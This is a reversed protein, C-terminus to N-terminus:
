KHLLVEELLFFFSNLSAMREKVCYKRGFFKTRLRNKMKQEDIQENPKPLFFWHRKIAIIFEFSLMAGLWKFAFSPINHNTYIIWSLTAFVKEWRRRRRRHQRKGLNEDCEYFYLSELRLLGKWQLLTHELKPILRWWENKRWVSVILFFIHSLFKFSGGIKRLKTTFSNPFRWLEADFLYFVCENNYM